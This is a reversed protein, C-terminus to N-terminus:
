DIDRWTCKSHNRRAWGNSITLCMTLPTPPICVIAGTSCAASCRELDTKEYGKGKFKIDKFYDEITQIGRPGRLTEVTLRPRPNRVARKKPEVIQGDQSGPEEGNDEDDAFLKEGEGDSPLQDPDTPINDNFLDDVGDDGFLSAMSSTALVNVPSAQM